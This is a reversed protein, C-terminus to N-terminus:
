NNDGSVKLTAGKKPITKEVTIYMKECKPDVSDPMMRPCDSCLSQAIERSSLVHQTINNKHILCDKLTQQEKGETVLM